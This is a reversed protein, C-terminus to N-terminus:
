AVVAAQPMGGGAAVTAGAAVAARGHDDNGAAAAARGHDRPDPRSLFLPGPQGRGEITSIGGLAKVAEVVAGDLLPLCDWLVNAKPTRLFLARQGIAFHAEVGVGILRPEKFKM